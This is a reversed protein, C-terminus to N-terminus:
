LDLQILLGLSTIIVERSYRKGVSNRSVSYYRYDYSFYAGPHINGQSRYNLSIMGEAGPGTENFDVDYEENRISLFSLGIGSRAKMFFQYALPQTYSAGILLTTTTSRTDFASIRFRTHKIASYVDIRKPLDLSFSLDLLYDGEYNSYFNNGVSNPYGVALQIQHQAYVSCSFILTM